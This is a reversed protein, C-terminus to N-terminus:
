ITLRELETLFIVDDKFRHIVQDSRHIVKKGLSFKLLKLDQEPNKILNFRHCKMVIVRLFLDALIL